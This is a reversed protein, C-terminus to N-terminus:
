IASLRRHLLRSGILLLVAAFALLIGVEGLVTRASGGEFVLEVWADMAWAHPVAHGIGRMTPGVIELPWMAGGLMGLAIAVPIGIAQAQDGNRAVSGVLLGAGACLLSFALVLLAVGVPDGFDVGFVLAGVSLLLLSQVISFLVRSLGFGVLITSTRLPGARIRNLVGLQRAQVISAAIALSNVFVFLVLNAPATYSFQNVDDEAPTGTAMVPVDITTQEAGLADATLLNADLDTGTLDSALRAAGLRAGEGALVGRVVTRVTGTSRRIPDTILEVREAGPAIVLGADVRGTRVDLELADLDTYRRTALAPSDDVLREIRASLESQDRDIVGIPLDGAEGFFTSGIIVMIVVPLVLIFFLATRDRYVRLLENRAIM